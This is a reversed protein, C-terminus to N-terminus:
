LSEPTRALFLLQKSMREPLPDASALGDIARSLEEALAAHGGQSAIRYANTLFREAKLFDQARRAEVAREVMNYIQMAEVYRMVERRPPGQEGFTVALDVTDTRTVRLAPRAVAFAVEAQAVRVTGADRPPLVLEILAYCPRDAGLEGMPVLLEREGLQAPLWHAIAPFVQFVRRVGVGKALRLRLKLDTFALQTLPAIEERLAFPLDNARPVLRVAGPGADALRTLLPGNWDHGLGLAIVGAGEAALQRGLLEVEQDQRTPSMSIVLLRSAVGPRMGKRLEEAGAKLGELLSAGAGVAHSDLFGVVRKVKAADAVPEAPMVTKARDGYVTISLTDEPGLVEGLRELARQVWELRREAEIAAGKEVIVAMNLPMRPQDRRAPMVTFLAYAMTEAQAAPLRERGLFAGLRIEGSM